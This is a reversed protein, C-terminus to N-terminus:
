SGTPRVAVLAAVGSAGLNNRRLNVHSVSSSSIAPALEKADAASLDNESLNLFTPIGSGIMACAAARVSATPHPSSPHCPTPHPVSPHCPTAHCSLTPYCYRLGHALPQQLPWSGKPTPCGEAM